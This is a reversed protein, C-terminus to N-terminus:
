PLTAGRFIRKCVVDLQSHIEFRLNADYIVSRTGGVVVVVHLLGLGGAYVCKCEVDAYVAKCICLKLECIFRGVGIPHADEDGEVKVPVGRRVSRAYCVSNPSICTMRRLEHYVALDQDRGESSITQIEGADLRVQRGMFDEPRWVELWGIDARSVSEKVPHRPRVITVVFSWICTVVQGDGFTVRAVNTSERPLGVNRTLKWRRVLQWYGSVFTICSHRRPERGM